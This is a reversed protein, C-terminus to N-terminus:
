FNEGNLKRLISKKTSLIRKILEKIKQLGFTGEPILEIEKVIVNSVISDIIDFTSNFAMIDIDNNSFVTQHIISQSDKMSLGIKNNNLETKTILAESNELEIGTDFGSFTCNDIVVGKAEKIKM